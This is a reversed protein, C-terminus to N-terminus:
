KNRFIFYLGFVSFNFLVFTSLYVPGRVQFKDTDITGSNLEAKRAPELM